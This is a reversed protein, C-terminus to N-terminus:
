PQLPFVSVSNIQDLLFARIKEKHCNRALQGHEGLSVLHGMFLLWIIVIYIRIIAAIIVMQGGGEGERGEM